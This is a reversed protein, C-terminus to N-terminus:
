CLNLNEILLTTTDNMGDFIVDHEVSRMNVEAAANKGNGGTITIFPQDLYDFGSDVIDIRDLSGKIACIGTAGVGTSDSIDLSPPNIIDYGSGQAAVDLYKIQGYFVTEVSKNNLLEVGNVLIGTKGAETTYNGSRNVPDKIERLINQSEIIKNRIEYDQLINSTSFSLPSLLVAQILDYFWECLNPFFVLSNVLSIVNKGFRSDRWFTALEPGQFIIM